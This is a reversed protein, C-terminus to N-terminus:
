AAAGWRVALESFALGKGVMRRLRTFQRPRNLGVAGIVIGHDILAALFGDAAPDAGAPGAGTPDPLFRPEGRDTAGALQLRRGFQDSWVYPVATYPRSGAPDLLNAAALVGQERASTWHEVRLTGGDWPNPWRAVDGAAYVNPVRTRLTPDTPVGDAAELVSGTLWGTAPRAGVGVVVLDADLRTGDTLEVKEVRGTGLLRRVGIGCRLRVGHDRHLRAVPEALEATLARQLPLARSEVITTDLGHHRAAAAIECGIFGAGVIVVTPRGDEMRERIARADELTRLTHVGPLEPWGSPYVPTSGTAVILGDYDLGGDALALRRAGTDLSRVTGPLLPEVQLDALREATTLAIDDEAFEGTLLEKSLAPRNYPPEPEAGVLTLRGDYGRRRLTEIANVGAVGAGVVVISRM